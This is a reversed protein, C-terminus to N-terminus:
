LNWEKKLLQKLATVEEEGIAEAIRSELEAKMAEHEEYCEVGFDTLQISKEKRNNEVPLIDVLGKTALNKIFKHTAQRTIEVNRTVSSITPRYNYVKSIIYWESNSIYIENNENWTKETIRRIHNHRASLLDILDLYELSQDTSM